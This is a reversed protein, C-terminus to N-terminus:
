GWLSYVSCVDDLQKKYAMDSDSMVYGDVVRSQPLDSVYGNVSSVIDDNMAMDCAMKFVPNKIMDEINM